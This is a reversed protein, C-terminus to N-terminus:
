PKPVVLRTPTSNGLTIVHSAMRNLQERVMALEGDNDLVFSMALELARSVAYHTRKRDDRPDPHRMEAEATAQAIWGEHMARTRPDNRLRQIYTRNPGQAMELATKPTDTM